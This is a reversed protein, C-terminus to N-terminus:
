PVMSGALLGAAFAGAFLWPDEDAGRGMSELPLGACAERWGEVDITEVAVDAPPELGAPWAVTVADGALALVARSHHSLGHHREREDALSVRPALVPRGQLSAAISLAAAVGVGGHGYLSGTGVIGPGIACVAAAFGERRAWALASAPTVCAVDGDICAGVAVTAGILGHRRLARLADSLPVPLAGGEVQVYAVRRGPGLGACVPVVQSHLTCGVVPLGALARPLDAEEEVHLAAAQLPTYPLKVVHAGREAPLDLGRTLNVHLVDFGGSGLGLDVAQANVVVDDGLAVPGTLRPYAVCPRGDVELRALGPHRERIATIRGRRLTLVRGGGLM